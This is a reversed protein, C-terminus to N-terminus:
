EDHSRFNRYSDELLKIMHEHTTERKHKEGDLLSKIEVVSTKISNFISKESSESYKQLDNIDDALKGINSQMYNEIKDDEEERDAKSQALGNNLKRMDSQYIQTLQKIGEQRLTSENQIENALNGAKDDLLSSIRTEHERRRQSISEYADQLKQEFKLLDQLDNSIMGDADKKDEDVDQQLNGINDELSRLTKTFAEQCEFINDEIFQISQEIARLRSSKEQETYVKIDSIKESLRLLRERHSHVPAHLVKHM